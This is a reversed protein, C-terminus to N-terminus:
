PRQPVGTQPLQTVMNWVIEQMVMALEAGPTDAATGDAKLLQHPLGVPSRQYLVAYHTLAVLYAGLDNFHIGDAFLDQRTKAPGIGDDSEEIQRVVQAFVQGAPIVYIPHTVYEYALARRLIEGEWYLALDRDLRMMWGEPDDLPHWTEYLYVQTRPNADWAATAFKHLYDHPAFYKIADRIEVAETLVLADYTGSALAERPDRHQPHTNEEAFGKVPVDPEWHEQLFSGWGIQSNFRHGAGALQTLMVPMDKGVLSHGVHFVTLPPEPAPAPTDYLAEYSVLDLPEPTTCRTVLGCAGLFLFLAASAQRRIRSLSLDLM